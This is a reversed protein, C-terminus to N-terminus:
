EEEELVESGSSVSAVQIHSSISNIVHPWMIIRLLCAHVQVALFFMVSNLGVFFNHLISSKSLSHINVTILAKM